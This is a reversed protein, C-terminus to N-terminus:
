SRLHALGDARILTLSTESTPTPTTAAPTLLTRRPTAYTDHFSKQHKQEAKV